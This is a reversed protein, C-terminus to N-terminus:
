WGLGTYGPLSEVGSGLRGNIDIVVPPPDALLAEIATAESSSVIAVDAGSLAEAATNSLLRALHPLKSEVYSRNAGVLRSPNVIPDFIRVQFGKGLMQETAYFGSPGAGVVAVRRGAGPGTSDTGASMTM